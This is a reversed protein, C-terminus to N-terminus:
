SELHTILQTFISSGQVSWRWFRGVSMVQLIALTRWIEYCDTLLRECIDPVAHNWQRHCAVVVAPLLGSKTAVCFVVFAFIFNPGHRSDLTECCFVACVPVSNLLAHRCSSLLRWPKHGTRRINCGHLRALLVDADCSTLLQRPKEADALLWHVYREVDGVDVQPDTLRFAKRVDDGDVPRCCDNMATLWCWRGCLLRRM